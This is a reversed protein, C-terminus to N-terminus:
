PDALDFRQLAVDSRRPRTLRPRRPRPGHGGRARGRLRRPHRPDGRGRRPHTPRPVAVLVGRAGLATAVGDAIEDTLREQVQPRASVTEILTVLAGLGAVLDGPLYVITVTGAFRLLHHECTSRFPVDRFAIPGRATVEEVASEALAPVPDVDVGAFLEGWLRAVREPTRALAAREPDLGLALLLEAVAAEARPLDPKM